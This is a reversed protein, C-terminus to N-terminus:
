PYGGLESLVQIVTPTAPPGQDISSPIGTDIAMPVSEPIWSCSSTLYQDTMSLWDSSATSCTITSCMNVPSNTWCDSTVTCPVTPAPSYNYSIPSSYASDEFLEDSGADSYPSYPYEALAVHSEIVPQQTFPTVSGSTHRSTSVPRQTIDDLDSLLIALEEDVGSLSQATCSTPCQTSIPQSSYTSTNNTPVGITQTSPPPPLPLQPWSNSPGVVSLSSHPRVHIFETASSPRSTPPSLQASQSKTTQSRKRSGQELRKVRKQAYKKLNVARKKSQKGLAEHINSSAQSVFSLLNNAEPQNNAPAKTNM